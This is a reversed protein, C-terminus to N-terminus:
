TNKKRLVKHVKIKIRGRLTIYKAEKPSRTYTQLDSADALLIWSISSVPLMYKWKVKIYQQRVSFNIFQMNRKSPIVAEGFICVNSFLEFTTDFM